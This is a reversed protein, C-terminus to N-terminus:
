TLPGAGIAAQAAGIGASGDQSEDSKDVIGNITQAFISGRYGLAVQGHKRRLSYHKVPPEQVQKRHNIM